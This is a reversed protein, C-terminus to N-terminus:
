PIHWLDHRYGSTGRDSWERSRDNEQLLERQLNDGFDFIESIFINIVWM